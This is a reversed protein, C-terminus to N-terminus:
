RIWYDDMDAEPETHNSEDTENQDGESEPEIMLMEAAQQIEQRARFGDRANIINSQRRLPHKEEKRERFRVQRPNDHVGAVLQIIQHHATKSKEYLDNANLNQFRKMTEHRTQDSDFVPTCM